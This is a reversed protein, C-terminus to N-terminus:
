LLIYKADIDIHKYKCSYIVFDTQQSSALTTSLATCYALRTEKCLQTTVSHTSNLAGGSVIYTM